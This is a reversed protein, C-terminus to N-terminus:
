ARRRRLAAIASLGLLGLSTPEPVASITIPTGSVISGGSFTLDAKPAGDERWNGDGNNTSGPLRNLFNVSTSGLNSTATFTATAILFRDGPAVPSLDTRAYVWNASTNTVTGGVDLDGDGDLDQVLGAQSNAGSFASTLSLSLNGLLGGNGSVLKGFISKFGENTLNSDAGQPDAYINLSVTDGVNAITATKGGTAVEVDLLLAAQTSAGLAAVTAAAILTNRIM